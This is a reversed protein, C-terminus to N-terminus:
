HGGVDEPTEVGREQLWARMHDKDLAKELAALPEIVDQDLYAKIHRPKSSGAKVLEVVQESKVGDLFREAAVARVGGDRLRM